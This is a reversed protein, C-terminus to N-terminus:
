SFLRPKDECDRKAKRLLKKLNPEEHQLFGSGGMRTEAKYYGDNKTLLTHNLGASSSKVMSVYKEDFVLPVKESLKGALLLGTEVKGSVEDKLLGIHGTVVVHCPLSMLVGLWDVATMQQVMYDQLEPNGGKRSKGRTGRRIIEFMMSDAWKTASDLFYTGIHDFFGEAQREAMEKEWEMFAHPDKWSDSEWKNEVVIDGATIQAQLAATKTGGPDFSDIFVPTPSTSALQSKGTGFDGYILFNSYRSSSEAYRARTAEAREQIKLFKDSSAQTM